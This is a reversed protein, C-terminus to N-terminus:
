RSALQSLVEREEESLEITAAAVNQELHSVFTTGPIPVM